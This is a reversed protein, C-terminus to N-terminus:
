WWGTQQAMRHIHQLITLLSAPFVYWSHHSHWIHLCKTCLQCVACQEHPQNPPSPIAFYKSGLELYATTPIFDGKLLFLFHLSLSLPLSHIPITTRYETPLHLQWLLKGWLSSHRFWRIFTYRKPYTRNWTNKGTYMWSPIHLWFCCNNNELGFIPVVFYRIFLRVFWKKKQVKIYSNSATDFREVDVSIVFHLQPPGMNYLSYWLADFRLSIHPWYTYLCVM